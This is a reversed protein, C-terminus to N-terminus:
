TLVVGGDISFDTGTIKISARSMFFVSALAVDRPEGLGLPYSPAVENDLWFQQGEFMPTKVIGPCLANVRIGYKSLELALPRMAGILAAKSASYPGVGRKGSKAAISSLFLISGYDRIKKNILLKQTLSIASVYNVRMVQEIMDIKALRLPAVGDVGACHIVGHLVPCQKVLNEVQTPEVLDAIFAKHEPSSMKEYLDNIRKEDRGTIIVRAGAEACALATAQGIGGSAGTVLITLDDLRFLSKSSM